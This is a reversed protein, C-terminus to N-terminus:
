YDKLRYRKLFELFSDCFSGRGPGIEVVNLQLHNREDLMHTIYNGIMYGYYPKYVESPTVWAKSPYKEQLEKRYDYFGILKEFAIKTQIEGM